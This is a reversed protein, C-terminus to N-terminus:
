RSMRTLFYAILCLQVVSLASLGLLWARTSKSMIDIKKDVRESLAAVQRESEAAHQDVSKRFANIRNSTNAIEAALDAAMKTSRAEVLKIRDATAGIEKRLVNDSREADGAVKQITSQAAGAFENLTHVVRIIEDKTAPEQSAKEVMIRYGKERLKEFEKAIEGQAFKHIGTTAQAVKMRLEACPRYSAPILSLPDRKVLSLLASKRDELVKGEYLGKVTRIAVGIGPM